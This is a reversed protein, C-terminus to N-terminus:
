VRITISPHPLLSLTLLKIYGSPQRWAPRGSVTSRFNINSINMM